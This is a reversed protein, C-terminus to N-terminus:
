NYIIALEQELEKLLVAFSYKPETNLIIGKQCM